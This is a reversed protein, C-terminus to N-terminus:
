PPYPRPRADAGWGGVPSTQYYAIETHGARYHGSLTTCTEPIHAEHERPDREYLSFNSDIAVEEVPAHFTRFVRKVMSRSPASQQHASLGKIKLLFYM